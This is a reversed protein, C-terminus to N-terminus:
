TPDEDIARSRATTGPGPTANDAYVNITSVFVWHAGPRRSRRACTRRTRSVDVVADFAEASLEAPRRGRPGVGRAPATRSRARGGRTVCTVDHGRSVAEAAVAKSLFVTGGLVLIRM